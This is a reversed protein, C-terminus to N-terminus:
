PNWRSAAIHQHPQESSAWYYLVVLEGDTNAALCPYGFDSDNYRDAEFGDRLPQEERWVAGGDDSMRALMQRRSRNGYVCCLRGDALSILAPPNGNQDGTEGVRSLFRWHRAGDTSVYCDVWCPTGANVPDRRRLAAVLAGNPLRAVSPMVARYPDEPPVIWSVFAFTRGGDTTEACFARDRGGGREVPRASCFFLCSDAGTALYSTRATFERGRLHEDQMLNGFHFPGQWNRGRDYSLLFGGQPYHCGHYGTGVIRLAIRPDQFRIDGPADECRTQYTVFGVPEEQTWTNGGDLSRSLLSRITPATDAKGEINHGEQEVYRGFSYGVLMERGDWCWVGNNAPWGAFFGTEGAAIGHAMEGTQM